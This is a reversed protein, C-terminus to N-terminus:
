VLPEQLIADQVQQTTTTNVVERWFMHCFEHITDFYIKQSLFFQLGSQCVGLGGSYEGM